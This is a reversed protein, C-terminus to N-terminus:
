IFEFSNTIAILVEIRKQSSGFGGDFSYKYGEKVFNIVPFYGEKVGDISMLMNAGSFNIRVFRDDYLYDFNDLKFVSFDFVPGLSIFIGGKGLRAPRIDLELDDPYLFEFSYEENQYLKWDSTDVAVYDTTTGAIIKYFDNISIDNVSSDGLLSEEGLELVRVGNIDTEYDELKKEFSIVEPDNVVEIDVMNEYDGLNTKQTDSKSILVYSIIILAFILIIIKLPTKM